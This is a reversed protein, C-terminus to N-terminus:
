LFPKLPLHTVPSNSYIVGFLSKLCEKAGMKPEIRALAWWLVGLYVKLEQRPSNVIEAITRVGLPCAHSTGINDPDFRERNTGLRRRSEEFRGM